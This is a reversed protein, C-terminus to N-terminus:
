IITTYHVKGKIGISQEHLKLVEGYNLEMLCYSCTFGYYILKLLSILSDGLAVYSRM